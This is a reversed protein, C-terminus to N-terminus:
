PKIWDTRDPMAVVNRTVTNSAPYLTNFAIIREGLDLLQPGANVGSEIIWPKTWQGGDRSFRVASHQTGKDADYQRYALAWVGGVKSILPMRGREGFSAPVSWQLGDTSKSWYFGDWCGKVDDARIAAFYRGPAFQAVTM